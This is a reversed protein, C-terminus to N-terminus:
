PQRPAIIGIADPECVIRISSSKRTVEGDTHVWLPSSTEIHVKKARYPTIGRIMYHRGHFATPLALLVLWKPIDGVACLDLIGDSSDAGPCFMFGGGEFRHLMVAVFLVTHIDIPDADDLTLRCSVARAALLQRLAIILYTLKGLGLKNLIKKMRSHLAEECVAADFGIGCSVSLLRRGSSLPASAASFTEVGSVDEYTLLALDMLRPQGEKLILELARLPERPLGLDRALDNSSGTPIYGLTIGKTFRFGQLAENVTGDGGLVLVTLATGEPIGATIDAAIRAVDGPKQSFYSRYAIRGSHLAPEISKKWISLGKGSRSAPNIIIHYM